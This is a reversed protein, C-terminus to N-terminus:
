RIETFVGSLTQANQLRPDRYGSKKLLSEMEVIKSTQELDIALLLRIPKFDFIQYSQKDLLTATESWVKVAAETQKAAMLATGFTEASKAYEAYIQPSKDSDKLVGLMLNHASKASELAISFDNKHLDRLASERLIAAHLIKNKSSTTDKESLEKVGSLLQKLTNNHFDNWDSAAILALEHQKAKYFVQLWEANNPDKATLMSLIKICEANITKAAALDGIYLKADTHFAMNSALTFTARANDSQEYIPRLLKSIEAFAENSGSLDGLDMKTSGIWSWAEALGYSLEINDPNKALEIANIDRSLIFYDLAQQTSGRARALSGLNSYAYSLEMNYDSNEPNRKLLERSYRMYNIFTQEARQLDGREWAVYGVWFEAQGLEFLYDNNLPDAKHLAQMQKLSQEFAKLADEQEGKSKRVEGIQRLAKGRELMEKTSGQDGLTAFYKMSQDGVADLIDLKGIPELKDRLDGLMFGILGEAQQRRMEAERKANLAYIALGITLAAIFLAGFAVISWFRAQRQADRRKLDDVGVDLLGAAIKLMANRKGDGSPSVDAALPERLANGNHDQLLASPFACDTANPDPSGTVLLCFIRDSRGSAQFRRIEENVWRSHRAAPSCVVILAASDDMAKRISESLDVGSALEDRDRFIPYLRTPLHPHTQRLTKPLRYKELARQLWRAWNEDSHSYSIFAQYHRTATM